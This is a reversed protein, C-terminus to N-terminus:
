KFFVNSKCAFKFHYRLCERMKLVKGCLHCQSQGTRPRKRGSEYKYRKSPPVQEGRSNLCHRRRIHNTMLHVTNLLRGCVYCIRSQNFHIERHAHFMIRSRFKAGCFSCTKLEGRRQRRIGKSTGSEREVVISKALGGEQCEPKGFKNNSQPALSTKEEYLEEQVAGKRPDCTCYAEPDWKILIDLYRDFDRDMGRSKLSRTRGYHKKCYPLMKHKMSGFTRDNCIYPFTNACVDMHLVVDCLKTFTSTCLGCIYPPKHARSLVPLIISENTVTCKSVHKFFASYELWENCYGCRVKKTHKSNSQKLTHYKQDCCCQNESCSTGKQVRREFKPVSSWPASMMVTEIKYCPIMLGTQHDLEIDNEGEDIKSSEETFDFNLHDNTQTEKHITTDDTRNEFAGNTVDVEFALTKIQPNLKHLQNCSCYSSTIDCVVFKVNIRTYIDEFQEVLKMMEDSRDPVQIQKGNCTQCRRLMAFQVNPLHKGSFGCQQGHKVCAMYSHFTRICHRCMYCTRRSLIQSDELECEWYYHKSKSNMFFPIDKVNNECLGTSIHSTFLSQTCFCALCIGCTYWHHRRDVVRIYHMTCKSDPPLVNPYRVKPRLCKKGRMTKNSDNPLVLSPKDIYAKGHKCKCIYKDFAKMKDVINLKGPVLTESKGLLRKQCTCCQPLLYVGPVTRISNKNPDSRDILQLKLEDPRQTSCKENLHKIFDPLAAFTKSCCGCSASLEKKDGNTRDIYLCHLKENERFKMGFGDKEKRNDPLSIEQIACVRFYIKYQRRCIDQDSECTALDEEIAHSEGTMHNIDQEYEATTLAKEAVHSEETAHGSNRSINQDYDTTALDKEVAHCEDTVHGRNQSIDQDYEGTASGKKVAHSEENVHGLNMEQHLGNQTVNNTSKSSFFNVHNIGLSNVSLGKSCESYSHELWIPRVPDTYPRSFPRCTRFYRRAYPHDHMVGDIKDHLDASNAKTITKSGAAMDSGNKGVSVGSEINTEEVKSSNNPSHHDLNSSPYFKKSDSSVSKMMKDDKGQLDISDGSDGFEPHSDLSQTMITDNNETINVETGEEGITIENIISTNAMFLLPAGNFEVHTVIGFPHPINKQTFLLSSISAKELSESSGLVASVLPNCRILSSVIERQLKKVHINNDHLSNSRVTAYTDVVSNRDSNSPLQDSVVGTEAVLMDVKQTSKCKSRGHRQCAHEEKGYLDDTAMSSYLDSLFNDERKGFVTNNDSSQTQIHGSVTESVHVQTNIMRAAQFHYTCVNTDSNKKELSSDSISLESSGAVHKVPCQQQSDMQFETPESKIEVTVEVHGSPQLSCASQFEMPESKIQFDEKVQQSAQLLCGSTFEMPNSEIQESEEM